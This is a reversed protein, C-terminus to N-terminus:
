LIVLKQHTQPPLPPPAAMVATALVAALVTACASIGVFQLGRKGFLRSWIGPVSVPNHFAQQLPTKKRSLAATFADRHAAAHTDIGATPTVSSRRVGPDHPLAGAKKDIATSTSHTANFLLRM